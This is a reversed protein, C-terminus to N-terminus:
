LKLQGSLGAPSATWNIYMFTSSCAEKADALMEEIGPRHKQSYASTAPDAYIKVIEVGDSAARTKIQRLQAELSFSDDQMTSSYRIYASGLEKIPSNTM